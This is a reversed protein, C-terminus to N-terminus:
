ASFLPRRLEPLYLKVLNNAVLVAESAEALVEKNSEQFLLLFIVRLLQTEEYALELIVHAV